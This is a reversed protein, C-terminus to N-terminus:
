NKSFASTQNRLVGFTFLSLLIISTHEEVRNCGHAPPIRASQSFSLSVQLATTWDGFAGIRIKQKKTIRTITAWCIEIGFRLTMTSVTFGTALVGRIFTMKFSMKLRRLRVTRRPGKLM